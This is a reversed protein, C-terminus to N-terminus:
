GFSRSPKTGASAKVAASASRSAQRARSPFRHPRRGRRGAPKGGPPMAGLVPQEDRGEQEGDGQRDDLRRATGEAAEVDGARRDVELLEREPEGEDAAEDRGAVAAVQRERGGLEEAGAAAGAPEGRAEGGRDRRRDGRHDGVAGELDDEGVPLAPVPEADANGGPPALEHHRDTEAQDREAEGPPAARAPATAADGEHRDGGGEGEPVEVFAQRPRQEPGEGPDHEGPHDEARRDEGAHGADSEEEEEGVAGRDRRHRRLDVPQDSRRRERRDRQEGGAAVHKGLRPGGIAEDAEEPREEAPQGAADRHQHGADAGEEGGERAARPDRDEGEAAEDVRDEALLPVALAEREAEHGGAAAESEEKRRAQRHDEERHHRAGRGILEEEGAEEGAQQEHHQGGDVPDHDPPALLAAAM